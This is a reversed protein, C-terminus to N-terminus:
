KENTNDKRLENNEIITLEIELTYNYNTMENNEFYFYDNKRIMDKIGLYDSNNNKMNLFFTDIKNSLTDKFSATIQQHTIDCTNEEINLDSTINITLNSNNVTIDTQIQNLTAEVFGNQCNNSLNLNTINNTLLNYISSDEKTLYDKFVKNQFYAYSEIEIKEDDIKITPLVTDKYNNLYDKVFDEFTIISIIGYESSNMKIIDPLKYSEELLNIVENTTSDKTIIPLFNNKSETNRLFYDIIFTIDEKAVEEELLLVKIHSLNIIKNTKLYINQLSETITKGTAEYITYQDDYDDSTPNPTLISITVHYINEEKDIGIINVIGLDNLEQYNNCSTLLLTTILLILIKKM